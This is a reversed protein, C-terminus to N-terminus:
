QRQPSPEQRIRVGHRSLGEDWVEHRREIQAAGRSGLDAGYNATSVRFEAISEISPFEVLTVGGSSNDEASQGNLNWNTSDERLGNFSMYARYGHGIHSLDASNDPSAGPVLFSLQQFQRGALALTVIQSGTVVDSVSGSETEVKTVNGAVTIQQTVQGLTLQMDLRLTQDVELRIGTRVLKQFGSVEASVVYNGIPVKDARYEGASNTVTNRVFGRDPNSVVIKAGPVIAGTSDTVIGVITAQDQAWAAVPSLLVLALILLGLKGIVDTPSLYGERKDFRQSKREM